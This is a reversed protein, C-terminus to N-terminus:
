SSIVGCTGCLGAANACEGCVACMRGTVRRRKTDSSDVSEVPAQWAFRVLVVTVNDASGRKLAEQVLGTCGAKPDEVRHLESVIEQDSMVDTLGDSMLAIFKHESGLNVVKVEPTASIINAGRTVAKFDRDGLSRSVAMAVPSQGICGLGQQEARIIETCREEYGGGM